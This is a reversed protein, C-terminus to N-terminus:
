GRAEEAVALRPPPCPSFGSRLSALSCPLSSCSRLRALVSAVDGPFAPLAGVQDRFRDGRVASLDPCLGSAARGRGPPPPLVLLLSSPQEMVSGPGPCARLLTCDTSPLGVSCSPSPPPLRLSPPAAAPLARGCPGMTCCVGGPDAGLGMGAPPAALVSTRRCPPSVVSPLPSRAFLPLARPPCRPARSSGCDSPSCRTACRACSCRRGRLRRPQFPPFRTDSM